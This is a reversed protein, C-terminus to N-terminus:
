ESFGYGMWSYGFMEEYSPRKPKNEKKEEEVIKEVEEKEEIETIEDITENQIKETEDTEVENPTNSEETLLKARNLAEEYITENEEGVPIADEENKEVETNEVGPIAEADKDGEIETNEVETVTATDSKEEETPTELALNKMDEMVSSIDETKVKKTSKSKTTTKKAM